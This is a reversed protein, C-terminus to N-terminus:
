AVTIVILLYFFKFLHCHPLDLIKSPLSFIPISKLPLSAIRELLNRLFGRGEGAGNKSKKEWTSSYM